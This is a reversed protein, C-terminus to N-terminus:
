PILRVGQLIQALGPSSLSAPLGASLVVFRLLWGGVLCSVVGLLPVYSALRGIKISLHFLQSLAVLFPIVLGFGVVGLWFPIALPGSTWLEISRVADPSGYLMQRIFVGLTVGEIAILAIVCAELARHLTEYGEGKERYTVYACVVGVGTDLASVTFLLPLMPTNWLPRFDLVGLLVGTYAAVGLNLPIAVVAILTRWLARRRQFGGWVRGLWSLTLDTWFLASIGNWIVAAFLLWAGRMMWSDWNVFSKFLVLARLPRGVHILLVAAGIGLAIAGFWAGARMTSCFRDRAILPLVHTAVSAGAGLGGLFLYIAILWGWHTQLETM